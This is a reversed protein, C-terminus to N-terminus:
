NREDMIMSRCCLYTVLFYGGYIVLILLATPVVSALVGEVGLMSLLINCFKLGFVSHIVALTLPLGFFLLTQMFLSHCLESESAGLKKLIVYRYRSDSCQALQKLALVVASSILFVIGLYLGVFILVLSITLVGERQSIRSTVFYVDPMSSNPTSSIWTIQSSDFFSLLADEQEQKGISDASAYDAFLCNYQLQERKMLNDPVIIIGGNIRSANMTVTGEYCHDSAPYLTQGNIMFSSGAEMARSRIEIWFDVDAAMAYENDELVIEEHHFLRALKNYDSVEMIMELSDFNLTPYYDKIQKQVSEDITDALKLENGEQDSVVYQDVDVIRSFFSQDFGHMTLEQMISLKSREIMEEDYTEMKPLEMVKSLMLDCPFAEQMQRTVFMNTSMASSFICITFFLLICIISMASVTMNINSHIERTTFSTLGNFYIKPRSLMIRLAFGSISWFILVTAVIGFFIMWILYLPYSFIKSSNTVQEYAFVLLTIGVAFAFLCLWFNKYPIKDNQFRASLMARPSTHSISFTNFIMILAYIFSFSFITLLFALPSFTFVYASMDAEFMSIVILSLIQSFMFGILLGIILSCLGIIVMEFILLACIRMKGMGLLLYVAFEQKRRKLMFRNAYIILFCFVIVVFVSVTMMINSIMQLLNSEPDQLLVSINQSDLSNFMYFVSVALVMTIFYVAYDKLSKRINKVALKFLMM